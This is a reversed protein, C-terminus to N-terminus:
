EGRRRGARWEWPAMVERDAWLGRRAAKARGEAQAYSVQDESSQERAYQRYWWALGSQVQRLGVDLVYTCANGQCDPDTAWVKAVRRGYRDLKGGDIRVARNFVLATLHEKAKHGNLQAKEPADIGALRVRIQQNGPALVTLTDGDAVGVVRGVLAGADALVCWSFLWGAILCLVRM